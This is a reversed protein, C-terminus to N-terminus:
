KSNNVLHKEPYATHVLKHEGILGTKHEDLFKIMRKFIGYQKDIMVSKGCDICVLYTTTNTFLPSM